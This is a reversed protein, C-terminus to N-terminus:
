MTANRGYRSIQDSNILQVFRGEPLFFGESTQFDSSTPSGLSEDHLDVGPSDPSPPSLAPEHAYSFSAPPQVVPNPGGDGRTSPLATSIEPRPPHWHTPSHPRTAPTSPRTPRERSRSPDRAPDPGRGFQRHPARRLRSPQGLPARILERSNSIISYRDNASSQFVASLNGSSRNGPSRGGFPHPPQPTHPHDVTISALVPPDVGVTQAVATHQREAHEHLSPLSTSPPVSSAAVVYERVVASGGSLSYSIAETRLFPCWCRRFKFIGLWFRCWRNLKRGLFALLSAGRNPFRRIYDRAICTIRLFELVKLVPAM